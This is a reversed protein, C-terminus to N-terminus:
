RAICNEGAWLARVAADDGSGTFVGGIGEGQPDGIVFEDDLVGEGDALAVGTDALMEARSLEPVYPAEAWYGVFEDQRFNLTLGQYRTFHLGCDNAQESQEIVEGLVNSLTVETAARMSGFPVDYQEFGNQPPVIIGGAQLDLTADEMPEAAETEVTEIDEAPEQSCAALAILPIALYALRM